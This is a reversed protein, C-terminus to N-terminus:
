ETKERLTLAVDRTVDRGEWENNVVTSGNSVCLGSSSIVNNLLCCLFFNFLLINFLPTATGTGNHRYEKRIKCPKDCSWVITENAAM